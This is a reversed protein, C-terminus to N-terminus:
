KALVWGLNEISSKPLWKDFGNNLKNNPNFIHLQVAKETEKLVEFRYATNVSAAVVWSELKEIIWSKFKVECFKKEM